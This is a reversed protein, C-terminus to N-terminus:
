KFVRGKLKKLMSWTETMVIPLAEGILKAAPRLADIYVLKVVPSEDKDEPNPEPEPTPEEKM